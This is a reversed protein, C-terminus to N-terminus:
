TSKSVAEALKDTPNEVFEVKTKRKPVSPTSDNISIKMGTGDPELSFGNRKITNCLTKSADVEVYIRMKM